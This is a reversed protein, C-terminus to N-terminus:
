LCKNEDNCTDIKFHAIGRFYVPTCHKLMAVAFRKVGIKM